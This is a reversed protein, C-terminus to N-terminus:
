SKVLRLHRREKRWNDLENIRRLLDACEARFFEARGNRRPDINERFYEHFITGPGMETLLEALRIAVSLYDGVDLVGGTIRCLMCRIARYEDSKNLVALASKEMAAMRIRELDELSLITDPSSQGNNADANLM